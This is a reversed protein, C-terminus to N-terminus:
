RTTTCDRAPCQTVSCHREVVYACLNLRLLYPNQNTLYLTYGDLGQGHEAVAARPEMANPVLRNNIFHAARRVVFRSVRGGSACKRKGDFEFLM